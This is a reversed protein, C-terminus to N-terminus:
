ISLKNNKRTTVLRFVGKEKWTELSDVLEDKEFLKGHLPAITKIKENQLIEEWSRTLDFKNEMWVPANKSSFWFGNACLDGCILTNEVLLQINNKTHGPLFLFEIGYKKFPQSKPDIYKDTRVTKFTNYKELFIYVKSISLRIFGCVYTKFNNKGAQIRLEDLKNYILFTDRENLFRRICGTNHAHIHTLVVYKIQEPVVGHEFITKLFTDYEFDFCGDVLIFENEQYEVLYSNTHKNKIQIIRSM